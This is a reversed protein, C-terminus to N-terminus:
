QVCTPSQSLAHMAFASHSVFCVSSRDGFTSLVGATSASISSQPLSLIIKWYSPQATTLSTQVTDALIRDIQVERTSSDSVLTFGCRRIRSRSSTWTTGAEQLTSRQKGHIAASSIRFHVFMHPKPALVPKLKYSSSLCLPRLQAFM